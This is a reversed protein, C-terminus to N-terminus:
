CIAQIASGNKARNAAMNAQAEAIQGRSYAARTGGGGGGMLSALLAGFEDVVPQDSEKTQTTTAASVPATKQSAFIGGAKLNAPFPVAAQGGAKLNTPFPVAAQGGAKLVRDTGDSTSVAM